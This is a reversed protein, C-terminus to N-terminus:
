WDKDVKGQQLLTIMQQKKREKEEDLIDRATQDSAEAQQEEPQAQQQDQQSSEQQQPSQQQNKDESEQQESQDQDQQDNQQQQNEQQNKSLAELAKRLHEAAQAQADGTAPAQHAILAGAAQDQDTTAEYLEQTVIEYVQTDPPAAQGTPSPPQQQPPQALQDHMQRAEAQVGSTDKKLVQQDGVLAAYRQDPTANNPDNVQQAQYLAATQFLLNKQRELLNKIKDALSEQQQQQEQQQKLQEIFGRMARRALAINHGAGEDDPHDQLAQRYHDVATQLTKIATRPDGNEAGTVQKLYSNALNHHARSRLDPGQTDDLVRQYLHIAQDLQDTEFYCNAQNYLLTPENPDPLEIRQYQRLAEHYDGEAYFQRGKEALQWATDARVQAAPAIVM